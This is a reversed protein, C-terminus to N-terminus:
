RPGAHAAARRRPLQGPRDGRPPLRPGEPHARPAAGPRGHGPVRRRLVADLDRLSHGPVPGIYTIGLDEFLRGPQAFDVVAGRFRAAVVRGDDPGVRPIGASPTTMPGGPAVGRAAVAQHAVPLHLRRRGHALHEDRQRQARHGHEHQRHGLDNLAELSLGSMLAADGVVVAIREDTGRVDRALALGEAISLGTGAHGGDM